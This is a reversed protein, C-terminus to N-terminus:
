LSLRSVLLFIFFSKLDHVYCARNNVCGYRPRHSSVDPELSGPLGPLFPLVTM